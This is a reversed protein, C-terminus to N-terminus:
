AYLRLEMSISGGVTVACEKFSSSHFYGCDEGIEITNSNFTYTLFYRGPGYIGNALSALYGPVASDHEVSYAMADPLLILVDDDLDTMDSLRIEIVSIMDLFEDPSINDEGDPLSTLVTVSVAMLLVTMFVVTDALATM